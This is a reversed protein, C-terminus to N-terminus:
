KDNASPWHMFWPRTKTGSSSPTKETEHLAGGGVRIKDRNEMIFREACVLLALTTRSLIEGFVSFAANVRALRPAGTSKVASFRCSLFNIYPYQTTLQLIYNVDWVVSSSEPQDHLSRRKPISAVQRDGHIRM